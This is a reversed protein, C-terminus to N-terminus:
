LKNNLWNVVIKSINFIDKDQKKTLGVKNYEPYDKVFDKRVDLVYERIYEGIQKPFEILGMKSFLNDLRTETVYDLVLPRWVDVLPDRPKPKRNKREKNEKFKKSKKKLILRDHGIFIEKNIPKGVIGEAINGNKNLIKSVLTEVEFNIIEKLTIDRAIVPVIPLEFDIMLNEFFSFDYYVNDVKIDFFMILKEDQYEVGKNIGKGFLEGYLRVEAKLNQTWKIVADLNLQKVAEQWNYFKEDSALIRKRTCFDITGDPDIAIQFNAGHLKELAVFKVEDLNPHKEKFRAIYKQRYSNEIDNYKKFEM